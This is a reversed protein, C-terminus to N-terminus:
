NSVLENELAEFDYSNQAFNNFSNGKRGKGTGEKPRKYQGPLYSVFFNDSLFSEPSRIYKEERGLIRVAEAYNVAAAM